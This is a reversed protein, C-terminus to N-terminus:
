EDCNEERSGAWHAAVAAALARWGRRLAELQEGTLDDFHIGAVAAVRRGSGAVVIEMIERLMEDDRHDPLALSSMSARFNGASSRSPRPLGLGLAGIHSQGGEIVLLLDGNVFERVLFEIPLEASFRFLYCDPMSRCAYFDIKCNKESLM